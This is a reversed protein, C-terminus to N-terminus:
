LFLFSSDVCNRGVDSRDEAGVSQLHTLTHTHTKYKTVRNNFVKGLIFRPLMLSLFVSLSCCSLTETPGSEAPCQVWKRSVNWSFLNKEESFSIHWSFPRELWKAIVFRHTHTHTHKHRWWTNNQPRLSSFFTWSRDTSRGCTCTCVHVCVCVCVCVCVRPKGAPTCKIFRTEIECNKTYLLVKTVAQQPKQSSRGTM